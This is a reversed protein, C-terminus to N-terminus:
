MDQIRVVIRRQIGASLWSKPPAIGTWTDLLAVQHIQKLWLLFKQHRKFFLNEEEKTDAVSSRTITGQQNIISAM